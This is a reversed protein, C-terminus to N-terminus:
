DFAALHAAQAHEVTALTAPWWPRDPDLRTWHPRYDWVVLQPTHRLTTRLM